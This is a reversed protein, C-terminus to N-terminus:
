PSVSRILFGVRDGYQEILLYGITKVSVLITGDQRTATAAGTVTRGNLQLAGSGPVFSATLRPGTITVTKEDQKVTLGFGATSSALPILCEPLPYKEGKVMLHERFGGDELGRLWTLTELRETTAAAPGALVLEFLAQARTIDRLRACARGAYRRNLNGFPTEGAAQAAAAYLDAARRLLEMGAPTGLAELTGECEIDEALYHCAYRAYVCAPYDAIVRELRARHAARAKKPLTWSWPDTTATAALLALAQGNAEAPNVATVTLINSTLVTRRGATPTDDCRLRFRYAGPAPLLPGTNDLTYIGLVASIAEGPGLRYGPDAAADIHAHRTFRHFPQGPPAIELWLNDFELLLLRNSVSEVVAGTNQVTVVLPLPEHLLYRDRPSSLTLELTARAPTLVLCCVALLLPLRLLSVSM